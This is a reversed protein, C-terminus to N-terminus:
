GSVELTDELADFDTRAVVVAAVIMLGCLLALNGKAQLRFSPTPTTLRRRREKYIEARM